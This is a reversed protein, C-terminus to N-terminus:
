IGLNSNNNELINRMLTADNLCLIIIDNLKERLLEPCTILPELIPLSNGHESNFSTSIFALVISVSREMALIARKIAPSAYNYFISNHAIKGNKEYLSKSFYYHGRIYINHIKWIARFLQQSSLVAKEYTKSICPSSVKLKNEIAISQLLQPTDIYLVEGIIAEIQELMETEKTWEDAYIESHKLAINISTSDKIWLFFNKKRFYLLREYLLLLRHSSEALKNRLAKSGSQPYFLV